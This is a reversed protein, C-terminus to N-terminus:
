EFRLYVSIVDGDRSLMLSQAKGLFGRDDQLAEVMKVVQREDEGSVNLKCHQKRCELNSVKADAVKLKVLGDIVEQAIKQREKGSDHSGEAEFAERLSTSVEHSPVSNSESTSRM